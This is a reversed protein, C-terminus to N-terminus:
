LSGAGSEEWWGSEEGKVWYLVLCVSLGGATARVFTRRLYNFVSELTTFGLRSRFATFTTSARPLNLLAGQNLTFPQDETLDIVRVSLSLDAAREPDREEEGGEEEEERGRPSDEPLGRGHAAGSVCVISM